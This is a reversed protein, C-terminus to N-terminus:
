ILGPQEALTPEGDERTLNAALSRALADAVRTHRAAAAEDLTARAALRRAKLVYLRYGCGEALRLAEEALSGAEERDGLEETARSLNLLYRIRQHPWQRGPAIAAAALERRAAEVEGKAQLLRARWAHLVPGMGETDFEALLPACADLEALARDPDNAYLAERVLIVRASLEEEPNGLARQMRIAETANERADAFLGLDVLVLARYRLGLALGFSHEAERAQAVTLDALEAAKRLNGTLHHLEILNIRSIVLREALGHTRCLEISRELNRRAEAADGRCLALVGLGNAGLAQMRDDGLGEALALVEVWYHRAGELDGQAWRLAGLEYLPPVCAEVTGSARALRLGDELWRLAEDLDHRRRALAGLETAARSALLDHDWALALDHARRADVQAEEWRGLHVLAAARLQYAESLRRDADALPVFGRAREEFALGRNLRSLADAVEGIASLRRAAMVVFPWAIASYGAAEYHDAISVVVLDLDSRHVIELARALRGHLDRRREESMEEVMVDALRHRALTSRGGLGEGWRVLGARALEQQTEALIEASLSGTALAIVQSDLPERAVAMLELVERAVPGITALRALLAQRISGPVPLVARAVQSEDLTLRGRTTSDGPEIFGRASLAHLMQALFLPNGESSGHLRHALARPAPGDVVFHLLLEEVASAGLAELQVRHVVMGPSLPGVASELITDITASAEGTDRTILVLLPFGDRGALNRLLWALLELSSRDVRQADDIVLLRPGTAEILERTAASVAWSEAPRASDLLRALGVPIQFGAREAVGDLLARLGSWPRPDGTGRVRTVALGLGRALVVAEGAVRSKGMGDAAEVVLLGGRRLPLEGQAWGNALDSIADRLNVLAATRGAIPLHSPGQSVDVGDVPGDSLALLVHRASAFRADPSKELLRLCIADLREPLTPALERPPRPAQHLHKDLFGALSRANFPRRGTLMLYLLGGLAYLDARGDVSEGTIQEPAIWAVTGVLEGAQTADVGQEKVVGFDMLRVGGDPLVMVNSPTLDRHVLGQDHIFALALALEHLIRSAEAFRESPNWTRWTEVVTGLEQGELRECAFWPRGQWTGHDYVRLVARHDLRALAAFEREMRRAVEDARGVPLMLKLARREGSREDLVDLVVAMAGRGIEGQVRYRGVLEGVQPIHVLLPEMM